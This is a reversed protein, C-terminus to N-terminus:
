RVIETFKTIVEKDRTAATHLLHTKTRILLPAAESPRFLHKVIDEVVDQRSITLKAFGIYQLCM